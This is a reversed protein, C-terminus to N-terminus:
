RNWRHPRHTRPIGTDRSAAAERDLLQLAKGADFAGTAPDTVIRRRSFFISGMLVTPWEGPQGGITVGAISYVKQETSFKKM